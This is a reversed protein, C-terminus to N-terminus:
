QYQNKRKPSLLRDAHWGRNLREYITTYGLGTEEAWVALPKTVGSITLRRNGRFNRMQQKQTVWAVNGPRYGDDNDIRGVSHRRSPAYGIHAIFRKFGNRGTWGSCVNIGRAGYNKYEPVNPNTCRSIMASWARFEKSKSMGHTKRSKGLEVCRARNYCGCSVTLSSRLAYPDVFVVSGCDCRCRVKYRHKGVRVAESVTTLRGFKHGQMQYKRM